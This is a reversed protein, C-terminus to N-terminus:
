GTRCAPAKLEAVANARDNVPQIKPGLKTVAGQDNRGAAVILQRLLEREQERLAIFRRVTPALKAPPKLSRQEAITADFAVLLQPGLRALDTLSSPLGIAAQTQTLRKCTDDLKASLSKGGCGALVLALAALPVLRRAADV